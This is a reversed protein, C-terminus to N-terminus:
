PKWMNLTKNSSFQKEEGLRGSPLGGGVADFTEGVKVFVNPARGATGKFELGHPLPRKHQALRPRALHHRPEDRPVRVKGAGPVCEAGAGAALKIGLRVVKPLDREHRAPPVHRRVPIDAVVRGHEPHDAILFVRPVPATASATPVAVPAPVVTAAVTSTTGGFKM